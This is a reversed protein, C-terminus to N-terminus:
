GGTALPRAHPDHFRFRKLARTANEPAGAQQDGHQQKAGTRSIRILRLRRNWLRAGPQRISALGRDNWRRDTRWGRGLTRGSLAAVRTIRWRRMCGSVPIVPQTDVHDFSAVKVVALAKIVAPVTAPIAGSSGVAGPLRHSCWANRRPQAAKM